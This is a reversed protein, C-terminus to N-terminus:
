RRRAPRQRKVPAGIWETKGNVVVPGCHEPPAPDWHFWRVTMGTRDDGHLEKLQPTGTWGCHCRGIPAASIPRHAPCRTDGLDPPRRCGEARCYM